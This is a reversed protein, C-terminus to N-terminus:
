SDPTILKINKHERIIEQIIEFYTRGTGKELEALKQKIFRANFASPYKLKSRYYNRTLEGGLDTRNKEFDKWILHVEQNGEIEGYGGYLMDSLADLSEGLKWDEEPM